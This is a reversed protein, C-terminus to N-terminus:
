TPGASLLMQAGDFHSSGAQSQGAIFCICLQKPVIEVEKGFGIEFRPGIAWDIQIRWRMLTKRQM